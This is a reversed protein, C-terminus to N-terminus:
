IGRGRHPPYEGVRRDGGEVILWRVFLFRVSAFLVDDEILEEGDGRLKAFASLVAAMPYNTEVGQGDRHCGALDIIASLNLMAASKRFWYVAQAFSQEVGEGEYYCLGLNSQSTSEGREAAGRFLRVAERQDQQVGVGMLYFHALQNQANAFNQDSSLRYFRAAENM